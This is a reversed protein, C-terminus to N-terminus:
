SINIATIEDTIQIEEMPNNKKIRLLFSCYFYPTKFLSEKKNIFLTSVLAKKTVSILTNLPYM